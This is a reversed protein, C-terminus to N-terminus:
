RSLQFDISVDKETDVPQGNLLAPIFRWERVAALAAPVLVDPGNLERSSRVRGDTGVVLRLTVTGEIHQAKAERPYLPEVRYLLYCDSRRETARPRDPKIAPPSAAPSQAAAAQVSWVPLSPVATNQSDSKATERSPVTASPPMVGSPDTQEGSLQAQPIERNHKTHIETQSVRPLNASDAHRTSSPASESPLATRNSSANQTVPSTDTAPAASPAGSDHAHQEASFKEPYNRSFGRSIAWGLILFVLAVCVCLAAIPEWKRSRESLLPRSAVALTAPSKVPVHPADPVSESMASSGAPAETVNNALRPIAQQYTEPANEPENSFDQSGGSGPRSAFNDSGASTRLLEGSTDHYATSEQSNLGGFLPFWEEWIRHRKEPVPPAVPASPVQSMERPAADQVPPPEAVSTETALWDAIEMRANESLELFKLGAETKSESLWTIEATAAIRKRSKPPQIRLNLRAQEVLPNFAQLAIGRETLDLVMGGNDAGIDLYALSGIRQRPFRRREGSRPFDESTEPISTHPVEDGKAVFEAAPASAPQVVPMTIAAAAPFATPPPQLAFVPAAAAAPAAVPPPPLEGSPSPEATPMKESLAIPATPHEPRNSAPTPSTENTPIPNQSPAAARNARLIVDTLRELYKGGVSPRPTESPTKQVTSADQSPSNELLYAWKRRPPPAEEFRRSEPSPCPPAPSVKEVFDVPDAPQEIPSRNSAHIKEITSAPNQALIDASKANLIAATHPELNGSAIPPSPLESPTIQNPPADQSPSSELSHSWKRRPAPTEEPFVAPSVQATQPAASVSTTRPERAGGEASIWNAIEIRTDDAVELFQLGAEKKSESLWTIEAQLDLRKRPKPPQIRLAVRTLGAFPAVAQLALGTESLNLLIGGNDADVDVYALSNLRLRPLRRREHTRRFEESDFSTPPM